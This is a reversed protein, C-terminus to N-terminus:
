FPWLLSQVEVFDNLLLQKFFDLVAKKVLAIGPPVILITNLAWSKSSFLKIEFFGVGALVGWKERRQCVRYGPEADCFQEPQFPARSIGLGVRRAVRLSSVPVHGPPNQFDGSLFVGRGGQAARELAKSGM